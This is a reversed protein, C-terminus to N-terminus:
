REGARRAFHRRAAAFPPSVAGRRGDARRLTAYHSLVDWM